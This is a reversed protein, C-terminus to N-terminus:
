PEIQCTITPLGPNDRKVPFPSDLKNVWISKPWSNTFWMNVLRVGEIPDEPKRPIKGQESSPFVAALQALQTELMKNFSLKNKMASNFSDMKESLSELIKDNAMMKNSINDNIKTQGLVLDKLSPQNSFSNNFNNSYGNGQGQYFPRSNWGQQQQQAPWYGNNNHNNNIFSVDEKTEPCDNGSHDGGGCV